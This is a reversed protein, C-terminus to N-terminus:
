WTGGLTSPHTGVPQVTRISAVDGKITLEGRELRQEILENGGAEAEIGGAGDITAGERADALRQLGHDRRCLAVELLQLFERGGVAFGDDL